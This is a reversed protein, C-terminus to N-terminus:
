NAGLLVDTMQLKHLWVPPNTFKYKAIGTLYKEKYYYMRYSKVPCKVKYKDPMALAPPTPKKNHFSYRCERYCSKIISYSAHIKDYRNYYEKCLAIGHKYLWTFNSLSKVAWLVSPHKQHTPKYKAPVDYYYCVTSMIQATELCMKVVHSDGQYQAALTPNHDLYFINM